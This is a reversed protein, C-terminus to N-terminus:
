YALREYLSACLIPKGYQETKKVLEWLNVGNRVSWQCLAPLNADYWEKTDWMPFYEGYVESFVKVAQVADEKTSFKTGIFPKGQKLKYIKWHDDFPVVGLYENVPYCFRRVPEEYTRDRIIIEEM